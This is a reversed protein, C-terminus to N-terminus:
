GVKSKRCKHAQNALVVVEATAASVVFSKQSSIVKFVNILGNRRAVDSDDMIDEVRCRDLDLKNHFTYRGQVEPQKANEEEERSIMM